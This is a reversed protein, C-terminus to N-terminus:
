IMRGKALRVLVDTVLVPRNYIQQISNVHNAMGGLSPTKSVWASPVM